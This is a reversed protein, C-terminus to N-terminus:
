FAVLHGWNIPQIIVEPKSLDTLPARIIEGDDLHNYNRGKSNMWYLYGNEEDISMDTILTGAGTETTLATRMTKNTLDYVLVSANGVIPTDGIYVKQNVNDIVFARPGSLGDDPGLFIEPKGGSVSGTYITLSNNEIWYLRSGDRSLSIGFPEPLNKFLVETKTTDTLTKRIIKNEKCIYAYQNKFDWAVDLVGDGVFMLIEQKMLSDTNSELTGKQLYGFFNAWYATNNQHDMQLGRPHSDEYLEKIQLKGNPMIEGKTIMHTTFYIPRVKVPTDQVKFPRTNSYYTDDTSSVRVQVNSDELKPVIVEISTLSTLLISDAPVKGFWVKVVSDPFNKGYLIVRTGALAQAPSLTDLQYPSNGAQMESDSPKGSCAIMFAFLIFFYIGSKM